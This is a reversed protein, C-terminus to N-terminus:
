RRDEKRSCPRTMERSRRLLPGARSKLWGVTLLWTRPAVQAAVAFTDTQPARAPGHHLHNDLVYRVARRVEAPTRLERAFYHDAFVRGKREVARNLARAIRVALGQMGRSLSVKDHAEVVLHLHNGQVSYHVVRFAHGCGGVTRTPSGPRPSLAERLLEMVARKRLSPVEPRTRWVAHLPHRALHVPRARHSVLRLPGKAKRGAGKRRGGWTPLELQQPKVQNLITAPDSAARDLRPVDSVGSDPSM